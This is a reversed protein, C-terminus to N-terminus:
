KIACFLAASLSLGTERERRDRGAPKVDKKKGAKEINWSIEYCPSHLEPVGLVCGM